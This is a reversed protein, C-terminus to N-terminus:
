IRNVGQGLFFSSHVLELADGVSWSEGRVGGLDWSGLHSQDCAHSGRREWRMCGITSRGGNLIWRAM